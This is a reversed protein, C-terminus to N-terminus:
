SNKEHSLRAENVENGQIGKEIFDLQQSNNMRNIWKAYTKFFEELSHGLQSAMFGPNANNMLGFTAYSHRMNYMDRHRIGLRKLSARWMNRQPDGTIVPAANKVDQLFVWEDNFGSFARAKKIAHQARSNLLITRQVGTKTKKQIGDKAHRNRIQNVKIENRSFDVHQWTLASPESPYRMGTYFGLEFWAGWMDGNHKYIDAIIKNMEDADLPDPETKIRTKNKFEAAPNTARSIAQDKIAAEFVGRLCTLWDNYLSVSPDRKNKEIHADVAQKLAKTLTPYDIHKIPKVDLM